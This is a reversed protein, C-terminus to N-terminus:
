GKAKKQAAEIKGQLAKKEKSDPAAKIAEAAHDLLFKLKRPDDLKTRTYLDSMDYLYKAVFMEFVPKPVKADGAKLLEMAKGPGDPNGTAASAALLIGRDMSRKQMAEIEAAPLKLGSSLKKVDPPLNPSGSPFGFALAVEADPSKEISEHLEAFRLALRGAAARSSNIYRRFFLPDQRNAKAGEEFFPVMDVYGKAMGAYVVALWPTARTKFESDGTVLRELHDTAKTYDAAAFTEKAASWYFGPTGMKPPAPATNSSCSSLMLVAVLAALLGCAARTRIRKM